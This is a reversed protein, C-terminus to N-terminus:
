FLAKLLESVERELEAPSGPQHFAVTAKLADRFEQRAQAYAHHVRAPEVNWREAIERIPLNQEFRMRLLEVRRIAEEGSEAARLRQLSAAEIMISEAWNRDFLQSLSADRAELEPLPIGVPQSKSEFRRAVNRVIGYLFARFQPVRGTTVAELAGGKRFCELFV